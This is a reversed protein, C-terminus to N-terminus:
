FTFGSSFTMTGVNLELSSGYSLHSLIEIVIDGTILREDWSWLNQWHPHSSPKWLTKLRWFFRLMVAKWSLISLEVSSQTIANATLMSKNFFVHRELSIKDIWWISTWLVLINLHDLVRINTHTSSSTSYRPSCQIYSSISLVQNALVKSLIVLFSMQWSQWMWNWSLSLRHEVISEMSRKITTESICANAM